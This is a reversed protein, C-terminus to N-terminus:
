IATLEGTRRSGLYWRVDSRFGKSRRLKRLTAPNDSRKEIRAANADAIEYVLVYDRMSQCTVKAGTPTTYTVRRGSSM